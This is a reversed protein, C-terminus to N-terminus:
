TFVVQLYVFAIFLGIIDCHYIPVVIVVLCEVVVDHEDLHASIFLQPM